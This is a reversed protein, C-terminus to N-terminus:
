AIYFIQYFSKKIYNLNEQLKKQLRVDNSGLILPAYYSNKAPLANTDTINAAIRYLLVLTKIDRASIANSVNRKLNSSINKDMKKIDEDKVKSYSLNTLCTIIM